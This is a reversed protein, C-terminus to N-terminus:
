EPEVKLLWSNPDIVYEKAGGLDVEARGDPMEVRVLEDGILVEVPMPFPLGEPVNWALDLKKGRRKEVLEPLAAQHLYVDFFWVLDRGSHKEAIGRIEDTDAYRCASGDNVKELEPDPYAMRRLAVFFDEDGLLWRLSHLIWSGKYYIDGGGPAFYIDTTSSAERPAVPGENQLTGRYSLLYERYADRGDLEEIYLVQAYSAFGEHIWFDKWNRCTVLNAWWEHAMEHHHLFDFGHQKGWPNGRYENGYAIISQHEMGLHPTEAVGYKDRRFPYPGFTEEFWRTQRLIDEFLVLGKDYNEPLVWYTIPFVEGTVSEYDRAITKYPAINLAVGYVNIPTSVNWHYTLWGKELEETSVLRGNSACVLPKPVTVVIDMGAPEDDPQDKCPWWLDAGQMQNATAIWPSGDATEEWVFGGDWPARPAVRPEGGYEVSLEFTDGPAIELRALQDKANIRIEGNKHKFRARAGDPDGTGFSVRHVELRDDLDLVLADTEELLTATMTLRGDILQKEPDVRVDLRYHLVDFCAQEPPLPRGSTLPESQALAPLAFCVLSLSTLLVLSARM